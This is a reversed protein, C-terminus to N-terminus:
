TSTCDFVMLRAEGSQLAMLQEATILTTNM